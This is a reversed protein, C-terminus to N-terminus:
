VLSCLADYNINLPCAGDPFGQSWVLASFPYPLRHLLKGLHAPFRGSFTSSRCVQAQRRSLASRNAFTMLERIM